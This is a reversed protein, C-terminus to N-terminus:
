KYNVANLFAEDTVINWVPAMNTITETYNLALYLSSDETYLYKDWDAIVADFANQQAQKLLDTAPNGEEDFLDYVEVDSLLASFAPDLAAQLADHFAELDVKTVTVPISLHNGVREAKGATLKFSDAVKNTVISQMDTGDTHAMASDCDTLLEVGRSDSHFAKAFDNIVQEASNEEIALFALETPGRGVVITALALILLLLALLKKM